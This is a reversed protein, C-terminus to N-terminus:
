KDHLGDRTLSSSVMETAFRKRPVSMTPSPPREDKVSKRNPSSAKQAEGAGEDERSRSAVRKSMGAELKQKSQEIPTFPNLTLGHFPGTLPGIEGDHGQSGFMNETGYGMERAIHVSSRASLAMAQGQAALSRMESIAAILADEEESSFRNRAYNTILTVSHLSRGNALSFLRATAKAWSGDNLEVYVYGLSAPNIRILVSISAGRGRRYSDMWDAIFYLNAVRVGRHDLTGDRVVSFVLDLNKTSSLFSPKVSSTGTLWRDVPRLATPGVPTMMFVDAIFFHLIYLFHRLGICGAKTADYDGHRLAKPLVYGDLLELLVRELIGHFNEVAAKFWPVFPPAWQPTTRLDRLLYKLTNGHQTLGNDLTLLRPIGAGLEPNAINPYQTKIYSKPLCAHRLTAVTTVDSMPEFGVSFGFPVFSTRCVVWAITPRGLPVGYAEDFIVINAQTEDYECLDLCHEPPEFGRTMRFASRAAKLGRELVLRDFADLSSFRRYITARSPPAVGCRRAEKNIGGAIKAISGRPRINREAQNKALDIASAFEREIIQSARNDLYPRRGRRDFDGRLDAPDDFRDLNKRWRYYTAKSIPQKLGIARSAASIAHELNTKDVTRLSYRDLASSVQYPNCTSMSKQVATLLAHRSTVRDRQDSPLESILREERPAIERGDTDLFTEAQFIFDGKAYFEDLEFQTFQKSAGTETNTVRFGGSILSVIRYSEAFLSFRAGVTFSFTRM